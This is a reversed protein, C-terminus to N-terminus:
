IYIDEAAFSPNRAVNESGPSAPRVEMLELESDSSPVTESDVPADLVITENTNPNTM